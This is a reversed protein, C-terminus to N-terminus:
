SRHNAPETGAPAWAAPWGHNLLWLRECEDSDAYLRLQALQAEFQSLWTLRESYALENLMLVM